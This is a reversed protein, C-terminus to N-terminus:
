KPVRRQNMRDVNELKYRKTQALESKFSEIVWSIFCIYLFSYMSKFYIEM